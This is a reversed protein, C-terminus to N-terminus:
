RNALLCEFVSVSGDIAHMRLSNLHVSALLNAFAEKPSNRGPAKHALLIHAKGPGPERM